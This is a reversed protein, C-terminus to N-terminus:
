LDLEQAQLHGGAQWGFVQQDNELGVLDCTQEAAWTHERAHM